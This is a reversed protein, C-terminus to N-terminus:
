PFILKMLDPPHALPPRLNEIDQRWIPEMKGYQTQWLQEYRREDIPGEMESRLAHLASALLKANQTTLSISRRLLEVQEDNQAASPEAAIRERDESMDRATGQDVLANARVRIHRQRATMEVFAPALENMYVMLIEVTPETAILHLRVVRAHNEAFSEWLLTEDCETTAARSILVHINLLAAAAELYADRRLSHQLEKTKQEADHALQKTLQETEHVRQKGRQEAEHKLQRVLQQWGRSIQAELYRQNNANSRWAIFTAVIASAIGVFVIIWLGAPVGYWTMGGDPHSEMMRGEMLTTADPLM